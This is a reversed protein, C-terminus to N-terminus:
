EQDPEAGTTGAPAKKQQGDQGQHSLVQVARVGAGYRYVMEGGLYGQVVLGGISLFSALVFFVPLRYALRARVVSLFLLLGLLGYGGYEHYFLLRAIQPDFASAPRPLQQEVWGSLVAVGCAVVGAFFSLRGADQWPREQRLAGVWDLILGFSTLAVAFHVAIPHIVLLFGGELPPVPVEDNAQCYQAGAIMVSLLGLSFFLSRQRIM